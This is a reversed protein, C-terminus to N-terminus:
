FSKVFVRLARNLFKISIPLKPGKEGDISTAIDASCEIICNKAKLKTVNRDELTDQSLVKFFLSGLDIHNCNKILVIDMLGDSIDAERLISSFGGADKGNLVLFLLINDEITEGDATVKIKFNRINVVETLAKLYYAFPGFNKKLEHHTNFSVDVFFGGAFTSLFYMEDNIIGVDVEYTKGALIIDICEDISYPIKLSRAFDNCTGAPIIGFPIDLKNKLMVNAIHNLTGDGGSAIVYEYKGNKIVETIKKTSEKSLRYPQLLIGKEQFRGIISDLRYAVGHDGAIPNYFLVAKKM